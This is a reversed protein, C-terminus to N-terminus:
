LILEKFKVNPILEKLVNTIEVYIDGVGANFIFSYYRDQTNTIYSWNTKSDLINLINQEDVFKLTIFPIRVVINNPNVKIYIITMKNKIFTELFGM